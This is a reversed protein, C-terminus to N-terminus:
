KNKMLYEAVQKTIDINESLIAGKYFIARCGFRYPNKIAYKVKNVIDEAKVKNDKYAAGFTYYDTLGLIDVSCYPLKEYKLDNYFKGSLFMLVAIMVGEFLVLWVLYKDAKM